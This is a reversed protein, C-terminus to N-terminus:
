EQDSWLEEFILGQLQASEVSKRFEEDGQDRDVILVEGRDTEPIKFIPSSVFRDKHFAYKKPLIKTNTAEDVLWVTKEHDLCDICMTVNLLTYVDGKYPLPLLEGSMEFFTQLVEIAKQNAILIDSNFHFFDGRKHRPKFIFVSPPQWTNAKSSCDTKLSLIDEERETLFYQFRSVNNRVRYVKM